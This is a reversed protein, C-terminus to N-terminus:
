FLGGFPLLRAIPPERVKREIVFDLVIMTPDQRDHKKRAVWLFDGVQLTDVTCAVGKPVFQEVFFASRDVRNVKERSDVLLVM